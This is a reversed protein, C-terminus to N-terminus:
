LLEGLRLYQFTIIGVITIFAISFYSCSFADFDFLEGVYKDEYQLSELIISFLANTLLKVIFEFEGSFFEWYTM